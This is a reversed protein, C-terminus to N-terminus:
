RGALEARLAALEEIWGTVVPHGPLIANGIAVAEVLFTEAAAAEGTRILIQAINYAVNASGVRDGIAVYMPRAEEYLARAAEANSLM